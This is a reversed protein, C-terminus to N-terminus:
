LPPPSVEITGQEDPHLTCHYPYVGNNLFEAGWLEGPQIIASKFENILQNGPAPTFTLRHNVNVDHNDFVIVTGPEITLNPTEVVLDQIKITEVRRFLRTTKVAIQSLLGRETIPHPISEDVAVAFQSILILIILFSLAAGSGPLRNKLKIM